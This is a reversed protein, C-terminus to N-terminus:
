DWNSSLYLWLLNTLSLVATVMIALTQAVMNQRTEKILDLYSIEQRLQQVHTFYDTRLRAGLYRMCARLEEPPEGVFGFSRIQQLCRVAKEDFIAALVHRAMNSSVNFQLKYLMYWNESCERFNADNQVVQFLRDCIKRLISLEDAHLEVQVPDANFSTKYRSFFGENVLAYDLEQVQTESDVPHDYIEPLHESDGLMGAFRMINNRWEKKEKFYVKKWITREFSNWAITARQFNSGSVTCHNFLCYMISANQFNMDSMSCRTFNFGHLKCNSMDIGITTATFDGSGDRLVNSIM